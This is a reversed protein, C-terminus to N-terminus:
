VKSLHTDKFNSAYKLGFGLTRDMGIHAFWILAIHLALPTMTILGFLALTAPFVYTHIANYILSGLAPNKLYGIMAADPALIFLLFLGLSAREHAYFLIAGVFVALSELKLLLGPRLTFRMNQTTNLM